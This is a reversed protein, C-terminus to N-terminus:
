SYYPLAISFVSGGNEGNEVTIRGEQSEVIKKAIALGLGTGKIEEPGFKMRNTENHASGRYYREFIMAKESTKIGPGTDSVKIEVYKKTVSNSVTVSGGRPTYKIANDILVLIAQKIGDRNGNMIVEQKQTLNGYKFDLDKDKAMSDFSTKCDSTLKILDFNEFFRRSVLSESRVSTLLGDVLNTMRLVEEEISKFTKSITEAPMNGVRKVAEIEMKITSLPTRLEHSADAAFEEQDKIMREIPKLTLGSLFYSMFSGFILLVLDLILLRKQFSGEFESLRKELLETLKPRETKNGLAQQIRDFARKEANIAAFSALSLLLITLLIYWLTLKLRANRFTNVQIRTIDSM